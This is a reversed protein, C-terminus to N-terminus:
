TPIGSPRHSFSVFMSLDSHPYPATIGPSAAKGPQQQEPPTGFLEHFPKFEMRQLCKHNWFVYFKVLIGFKAVLAGSIAIWLLNQLFDWFFLIQFKFFQLIWFHLFKDGHCELKKHRLVIRLKACYLSIPVSYITLMKLTDKFVVEETIILQFM